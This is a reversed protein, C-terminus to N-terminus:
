QLEARRKTIHQNCSVLLKNSPSDVHAGYNDMLLLLKQQV